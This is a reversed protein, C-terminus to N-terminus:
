HIDLMLFAHVQGPEGSCQQDEVVALQTDSEAESLAVSGRSSGSYQRKLSQSEPLLAKLEMGGIEGLSGM